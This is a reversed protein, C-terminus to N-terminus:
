KKREKASIIQIESPKNVINEEEDLQDETEYPASTFLDSNPGIVRIDGYFAPKLDDKTFQKAAIGGEPEIGIVRIKWYGNKHHDLHWSVLLMKDPNEYFVFSCPKTPDFNIPKALKGDVRPIFPFGAKFKTCSKRTLNKARKEDYYCGQNGQYTTYLFKCKRCKNGLSPKKGSDSM